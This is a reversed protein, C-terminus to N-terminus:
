GNLEAHLNTKQIEVCNCTIWGQYNSAHSKVEMETKETMLQFACGKSPDSKGTHICMGPKETM